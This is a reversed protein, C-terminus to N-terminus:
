EPVVTTAKVRVVFRLTEGAELWRAARWAGVADSLTGPAGVSPGVVMARVPVRRQWWRRRPASTQDGDNNAWVHAHTLVGAEGSVELAHAGLRVTFRARPLEVYCRVARRETLSAPHTLDVLRGGDRLAPWAFESGPRSFGEGIATAVRARAGRVIDLTVRADWPLPMRLGWVFPLRAAHVNHVAYALCLAGDPELTVTRRWALPYPSPLWSASVSSATGDAAVALEPEEAALLGGPPFVVRPVGGVFSPLECAAASPAYDLWPGAACWDLGDAVFGTIPAGAGATVRVSTGARRLEAM